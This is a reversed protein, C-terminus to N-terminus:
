SREELRELRLEINELLAALASPVAFGLEEGQDEFLGAFQMQGRIRKGGRTWYASFNPRAQGQSKIRVRLKGGPAVPPAMDKVVVTADGDSYSFGPDPGDPDKGDVGLLEHPRGQGSSIHIDDPGPAAGTYTFEYTEAYSM